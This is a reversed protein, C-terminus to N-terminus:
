AALDDGIDDVFDLVDSNSLLDSDSTEYELATKYNQIAEEDACFSCPKSRKAEFSEEVTGAYLTASNRLSQCNDDLHYCRGFQTWYVNGDVTYEYADSQAQALDEASVPNWDTSAAGAAIAVVAAIITAIKKTKPDLDKEKLLLVILPVFCILSAILGMNNWLFFRVPHKESAPDIRNSKKWLTSGLVVFILDAVLGIIIYTLINGKLYFYGNILLIVAVEFALAILWLGVAGWRFKAARKQNQASVIAHTEKAKAATQKKAPESKKTVKPVSTKKASSSVPKGTSAQIIQRERKEAMFLMGKTQLNLGIIDCITNAHLLKNLMKNYSVFSGFIGLLLYM